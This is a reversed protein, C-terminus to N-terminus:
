NRIVEIQKLPLAIKYLVRLDDVWLDIQLIGSDIKLHHLNLKKGKVSIVEVGTDSVKLMGGDLEQPIVAEISQSKGASFDFLRAVFAFHHFINTDLVIFRDGVPLGRKRPNGSGQYEFTAENPLFAGTITGKQGDVNTELRYARPLYQGDMDLHSEMRISQHRNGPDHFDVTSNSSVSDVSSTISFKEHGIEKGGVLIDFQGDERATRKSQGFTLPRLFPLLLLLLLFFFAPIRLNSRSGNPNAQNLLSRCKASKLM